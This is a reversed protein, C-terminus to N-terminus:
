LECMGARKMEWAKGRGMNHWQEARLREGQYRKAQTM